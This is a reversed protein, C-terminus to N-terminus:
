KWMRIRVSPTAAAGIATRRNRMPTRSLHRSVL